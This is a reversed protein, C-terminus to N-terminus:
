RLRGNIAVLYGQESFKALEPYNLRTEFWGVQEPKSITLVEDNSLQLQSGLGVGGLRGIGLFKEPTLPFRRQTSRWTEDPVAIFLPDAGIRPTGQALTLLPTQEARLNWLRTAILRELSVVDVVDPRDCLVRFLTRTFRSIAFRDSGHIIRMEQTRQLPKCAALLTYPPDTASETAVFNFSSDAPEAAMSKNVLEAKWKVDEDEVVPVPLPSSKFGGSFCCDLIVFQALPKKQIQLKKLSARLDQALFLHDARLEEPRNASAVDFPVFGYLNLEADARRSPNTVRHGHGSYYIVVTDKPQVLNALQLLGTRIDEKTARGQKGVTIIHKGSVGFRWTLLFHMLRLDNATALLGYHKNLEKNEFEGNGILLVKIAM